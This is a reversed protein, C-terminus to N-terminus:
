PEPARFLSRSALPRDGLHARIVFRMLRKAERLGGPDMVADHAVLEDVQVSGSPTQSCM